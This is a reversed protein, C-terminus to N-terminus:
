PPPRRRDTWPRPNPPGPTRPHPEAQKWAELLDALLVIRRDLSALDVFESRTHMGGGVPGLGDLIPIAGPDPLFNSFSIGGRDEEIDLRWGHERAMAAAREAWERSPGQPDLPPVTDEFHLETKVGHREAVEDALSALTSRLHEEEDAGLFRAEGEVRARDPVVNTQRPSFLLDAEDGLNEVFGVEGAVLRGPNVTPGHGPKSLANAAVSWEAAAVLASRGQWFGNGAHASRGRVDLQWQLLGRRGVVVTEGAFATEGVLGAAGDASPPADDPVIRGEADIPRGPELVWLARAEAGLERVVEQSIHGAVEEDPVVVLLLDDPASRGDAALQDLAGVFAALGGKMDVAGTAWLRGERHEPEAAPLVTDLHGILFLPRALEGPSRAYLVPLPHGDADAQDRIETLLGREDLAAALTEAARLLGDRDGSPSAIAVLKGLLDLASAFAESHALRPPNGRADEAPVAAPSPDTDLTM